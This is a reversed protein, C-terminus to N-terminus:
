RRRPVHAPAAHLQGDSRPLPRPPSPGGQRAPPCPRLPPLLFLATAGCYTERVCSSRQCHDFRQGPAVAVDLLQHSEHALRLSRLHAYVM